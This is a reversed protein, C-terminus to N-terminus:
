EEIQSTGVRKGLYKIENPFFYTVVFAGACAIISVIPLLMIVEHAKLQVLIIGTAIGAAIGEFLGQVAFYMSSVSEGTKEFQLQALGTPVVYTVSFFAGIAFSVVIGGCIAIVNLILPTVVGNLYYCLLMVCMGVSFMSLVFRYAFAIGFRKTFKNYAMITLPVPAFSSAMVVTMNLSEVNSFLENIGGLFLQLGITSIACASMWIIFAKDKFSTSLASKLTLKRIEGGDENEKLLFFPIIMTLSLPLFILAVMRININLQIFVPILAFCLSFYVVDCISKTNSLFLTDKRDQCIEAFTAYYTLMTLTYCAYFVCLLVGFWITNLYSVESKLPILFLLYAIIMPIYGILIATKRRGLKTKLSDAFTAFPLDIIGDLAKALFVFVSWLGAVVIDKDLYTWEAVHDVFGKAILASTLYSGMIINLINVGLGSCGFLILKKRSTIKKM